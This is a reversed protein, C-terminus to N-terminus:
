ECLVNKNGIRNVELFRELEDFDKFSIELVFKSIKGHRDVMRREAFPYYESVEVVQENTIPRVTEKDSM